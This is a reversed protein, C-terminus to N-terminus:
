ARRNKSEHALFQNCLKGVRELRVLVEETVHVLSIGPWEEGNLSTAETLKLTEMVFDLDGNIQDVANISNKPERLSVEGPQKDRKSKKRDM